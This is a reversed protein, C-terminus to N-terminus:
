CKFYIISCIGRHTVMAPNKKVEATHPRTSLRLSSFTPLLGLFQYDIM